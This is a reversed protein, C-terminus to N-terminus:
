KKAQIIKFGNETKLTTVTKFYRALIEEYPLHTNAVMFLSGGPKLLAAANGIFELGLAINLDRLTHFPPNMVCYDFDKLGAPKSLDMWRVDINRGAHAGALNRRTADVARADADICTMLSVDPSRTLVDHALVGIGCGLDAVRGALNSPIHQMLLASATDVRNWSFLGPRTWFTVSAFDKQQWDGASLWDSPLAADTKKAWVIRCKHKSDSQLGPLYPSLDDYLRRGGGDNGAAAILVGGVTLASWARSLAFLAEERQKPVRVLALPFNGDIDDVCRYGQATMADADGKWWQVVQAIGPAAWESLGPAPVANYLLVPAGVDVDVVGRQLPHLLAKMVPDSAPSKM